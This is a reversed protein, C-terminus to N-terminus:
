AKAEQHNIFVMVAPKQGSLKKVFRRISHAIAQEREAGPTGKTCQNREVATTQASRLGKSHFMSLRSDVKAIAVTSGDKMHELSVASVGNWALRLRRENEDRQVSLILRQM